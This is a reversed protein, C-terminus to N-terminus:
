RHYSTRHRESLTDFEVVEDSEMDASSVVAILSKAMDLQPSRTNTHASSEVVVSALYEALDVCADNVASAFAAHAPSLHWVILKIRSIGIWLQIIRNHHTVHLLM